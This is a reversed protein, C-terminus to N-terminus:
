ERMLFYVDKGRSIFPGPLIRNPIYHSDHCETSLGLEMKSQQCALLYPEPGRCNLGELLALGKEQGFQSGIPASQAPGCGLQRCAVVAEVFSWSTDCVGYWTANYLVEVRGACSSPGDKVRLEQLGSCVVGADEEHGCNHEGWGRLSCEAFTSESGGCHVSDLWIPGLGKGFHASDLASLAMGCGLEKCVVSADNLDWTDDCITGWRQDHLVEVRGSCNNSGNVLRLMSQGSTDLEADERHDCDNSGWRRAQCQSLATEAGTCNVDDLWVRGAGQGFRALGPASVAAGCGLQRCVVAAETLSWNDDCVTGWLYDHLVEVRGSCRGSGNVLRLEPLVETAADSGKGFHASGPASIPMGCNLQRCVVKADLFSWDDDCVTGWQNEHLLEVRGSCRNPGNALRLATPHPHHEPPHSTPDAKSKYYTGLYYVNQRQGQGRGSCIVGVDERHNCNNEEVKARCYSLAIETGTCNVDSLWIPGSGVSFQGSASASLAKGCRMQRCVVEAEKLDWRDGCVTGWQNSYFVEVRGACRHPGGALTSRSSTFRTIASNLKYNSTSNVVQNAGSCVVGADDDHSCSHLGWPSATCEALSTEAGTCDVGDLWILDRGQGFHASGATSIATGCGLQRCVVDADRTDWGNGCVSGWRRDHLVEVRGSCRHSGNVLRLPPSEFLSFIELHKAHLISFCLDSEADRLDWGDDCVSGWCQEHLVELRGSSRGSGNVLRVATPDSCVVGADEGHNCNHEGWAKSSCTSLAEETGTCNLDDLWIPGSGQGFRASGPASLPRGCGVEQCVVRAEELGWEDDCVSGWREEHLVEVRGSCRGSGNVLRVESRESCVVGADEGHNCNHEGWANASCMSLVGETGVCNVNDLWIPGSGQGFRASGPASLPRGCGVEQCVVRAEELGWEDDCVSGWREEHLVEVRGSCRGSGNVLRVESREAPFVRAFHFLVCHVSLNRVEEKGWM